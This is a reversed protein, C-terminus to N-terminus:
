LFIPHLAKKLDKWRVSNTRLTAFNCYLVSNRGKGAIDIWSFKDKGWISQSKWNKDLHWAMHSRSTIENPHEDIRERISKTFYPIIRREARFFQVRPEIHHRCIFNEEISGFDKRAEADDKTEEPQFEERVGHSEGSLNQRRVTSERRLTPEQFENDRGSLIASGDAVPFVFEENKPLWWSKKRMWDEPIFKQHMWSKWNKLRLLWFIKKGLKERSCRMDLFSEQYFKKKRISSNDSQRERPIQTTNWWHMLHYYDDIKKEKLVDLDTHTSRYRWYKLPIPFTDEKPVYLQVRPENHLRYIVDGPISWSDARAEADDQRGISVSGIRRSTRQQFRWEKRDTGAKSHVRSIRLRKRVLKIYWRSSSPIQIWWTKTNDIRRERQDNSSLNRFCGVKGFRGPRSELYRRELNEGRDAWLWSLFCTISEQWISSTTISRETFDSSIRGNSSFSKNARQTTRWITKWIANVTQWSTKSTECIATANWLTLGGDKM